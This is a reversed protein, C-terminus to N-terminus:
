DNKYINSDRCMELINETSIDKNYRDNIEQLFYFLNSLYDEPKNSKEILKTYLIEIGGRCYEEFLLEDKIAKDSDIENFAKNLRIQFDSENSKDLLMILQYNFRLDDRINNFQAAFITFDLGSESPKKAVKNNYLFGIVAANKFVDYGTQFLKNKNADIDTVLHRVYDGHAGTIVYDKDFM